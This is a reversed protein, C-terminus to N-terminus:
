AGGPNKLTAVDPVDEGTFYAQWLDILPRLRDSVMKLVLRSADCHM